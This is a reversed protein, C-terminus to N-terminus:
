EGDRSHSQGVSRLFADLIALATERDKPSCAELRALLTDQRAATSEAPKTLIEDPTIHLASCIRLATEVRMNVTGREIDAYTRDSIGALDAVEAQTMGSRKRFTYLKSGIEQMDYLLM